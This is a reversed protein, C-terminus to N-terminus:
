DFTFRFLFFQYVYTFIINPCWLTFNEHRVSIKKRKFHVNLLFLIDVDQDSCFWCSGTILYDTSWCNHHVAISCYSWELTLGILHHYSLEHSSINYPFPLQFFYLSLFWHRCNNTFLGERYCSSVAVHPPSPSQTIFYCLAFPWFCPSPCQVARVAYM